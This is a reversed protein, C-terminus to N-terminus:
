SLAGSRCPTPPNDFHHSSLGSLNHQLPKNQKTQVRDSTGGSRGSRM